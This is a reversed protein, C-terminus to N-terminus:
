HSGKKLAGEDKKDKNIKFESIQKNIEDIISVQQDVM